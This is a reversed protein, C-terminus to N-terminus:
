IMLRELAAIPYADRSQVVLPYTGFRNRVQSVDCLRPHDTTLAGSIRGRAGEAEPCCIHSM